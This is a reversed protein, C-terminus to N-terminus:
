CKPVDGTFLPPNVTASMAMPPVWSGIRFSASNTDATENALTASPTSPTLRMKGVVLVSAEVPAIVTLADSKRRVPVAAVLASRSGSKACSGAMSCNILPRDGTRSLQGGQSPATFEHTVNHQTDQGSRTLHVQVQPTDTSGGRRGRGSELEATRTGARAFESPKPEVDDPLVNGDLEPVVNGEESPVTALGPSRWWWESGRCSPSVPM